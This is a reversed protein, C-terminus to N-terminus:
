EVNFNVIHKKENVRNMNVRFVQPSKGKQDVVVTCLGSRDRGASFYKISVLYRGRPPNTFYVHEASGRGGTTNDKDLYGRARSSSVNGYFIEQNDVPTKVHLDIDSYFDWLLTITVDGQQGITRAKRIIAVDAPPTPQPTPPTPPTPQTINAPPIPQPEQEQPLSPFIKMASLLLLLILVVYTGYLMAKLGNM